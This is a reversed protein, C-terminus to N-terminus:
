ILEKTCHAYECSHDSPFIRCMDPRGEYNRCDGGDQDLWKCTFRPADSEQRPSAAGPPRKDLPILMEVLIEIDIAPGRLSPKGIIHQPWPGDNQSRRLNEKLDDLTLGSGVVFYRCCHGTCRRYPSADMAPYGDITAPPGQSGTTPQQNCISDFIPM